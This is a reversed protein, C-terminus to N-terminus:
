LKNVEDDTKFNDLCIACELTEDKIMEESAKIINDNLFKKVKPLRLDQQITRSRNCFRNRIRVAYEM